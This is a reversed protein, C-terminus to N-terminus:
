AQFSFTSGISRATPGIGIEIKVRLFRMRLGTTCTNTRSAFCIASAIPVAKLEVFTATGALCVETHLKAAASRGAPTGCLKFNGRSWDAPLRNSRGDISVFFRRDQTPRAHGADDEPYRNPNMGVLVLLLLGLGGSRCSHNAFQYPDVLM